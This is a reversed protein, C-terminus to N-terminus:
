VPEFGTGLVMNFYMPNGIGTPLKPASSPRMMRALNVHLRGIASSILNTQLTSITKDTSSVTLLWIFNQFSLSVGIHKLIIDNTKSITLWPPFTLGSYSRVYVTTHGGIGNLTAFLATLLVFPRM